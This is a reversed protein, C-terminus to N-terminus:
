VLAPLQEAARLNDSLQTLDKVPQDRRAPPTACDAETLLLQQAQRWIAATAKDQVAITGYETDLLV